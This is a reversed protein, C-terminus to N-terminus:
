TQKQRAILNPTHACLLVHFLFLALVGLKLLGLLLPIPIDAMRLLMGRLSVKGQSFHCCSPRCSKGHGRQSNGFFSERTSIDCNLRHVQSMGNLKTAVDFRELIVSCYRSVADM